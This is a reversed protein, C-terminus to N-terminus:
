RGPRPDRGRRGRRRLPTRRAGGRGGASLGHIRGRDADRSARDVLHLEGRDDLYGYDGTVFWGDADPGGAGDPWYGSFLTPGSVEIRGVEGEGALVAVLEDGTDADDEEVGGIRVAIGTLPLGVSGARASKTMLATSVVSSSESIGYGEWVPQGTLRRIAAFDTADLPAAGSTMLRVSALARDAGPEHTFEHFLGPAAPIISVRHARAAALAAAPDAGSPLVGAAGATTLPLFATLFGSPHHLPLVLLVRDADRLGLGPAAHIAHVAALIARHSLMVARDSHTARAVMALDEDGCRSQGFSGPASSWWRAVDAPTFATVRGHDRSLAIGADAQVRGAIVALDPRGPEVPVAVLGARAVALLAVILDAGSPLAIIVRAGPPLGSQVLEDAGADVAADIQAWTLRLEDGILAPRDPHRAAADRLLDAVNHEDAGDVM